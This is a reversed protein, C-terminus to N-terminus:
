RRLVDAGRASQFGHSCDPRRLRRTGQPGEGSRNASSHIPFQEAIPELLRWDDISKISGHPFPYPIDPMLKAIDLDFDHVFFQYTAEALKRGSGEPKFHHWFCVPLRDVEEGNVALSVREWPSIEM